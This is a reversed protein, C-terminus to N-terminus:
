IRCAGTHPYYLAYGATGVLAYSLFSIILMVVAVVNMRHVTPEALDAWIPFVNIQCTYALSIVPLATFLNMPQADFEKLRGWQLRGDLWARMCEVALLVAFALIIAVAAYASYELKGISRLMALPFIAVLLLTAIVFARTTYWAQVPTIQLVIPMAMHGIIDLFGALVGFILVDMLITTLVRGARPFAAEVLAEYSKARVREGAM